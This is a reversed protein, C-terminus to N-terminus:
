EIVLQKTSNGYDTRIVILYTGTLLDSINVQTSIESITQKKVVRGLADYMKLEGSTTIDPMQITAFGKAPNPFLKFSQKEFENNGLTVAYPATSVANSLGGHAQLTFSASASRSSALNISGATASFVYDGPEGTNLARTSIVTRTTGTITNSTTTWSQVADAAPVQYGILQRDSINTTNIFAIIDGNVMSGGNDFALSYWRDSPMIQTLTVLTSTVDIKVSYESLPSPFVITGTSFTQGFFTNAFFVTILTLTIKKM